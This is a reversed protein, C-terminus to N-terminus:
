LSRSQTQAQRCPNEPRYEQRYRQHRCSWPSSRATTHASSTAQLCQRHISTNGRFRPKHPPQHHRHSRLSMKHMILSSSLDSRFSHESKSAYVVGLACSSPFSRLRTQPSSKSACSAQGRTYSGTFTTSSSVIYGDQGRPMVPSRTLRSRRISFLIRVKKCEQACRKPKCRNSDVIAVRTIKDAMTAARSVSTAFPRAHLPRSSSSLLLLPGSDKLPSPTCAGHRFAFNLTVHGGLGSM